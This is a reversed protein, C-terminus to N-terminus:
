FKGNIVLDQPGNPIKENERINGHLVVKVMQHLNQCRQNKSCWHRSITKTARDLWQRDQTLQVLEVTAFYKHGNPAPEGLPKLLKRRVLIPIDHEAFGLLGAVQQVNLRAPLRLVNLIQQDNM